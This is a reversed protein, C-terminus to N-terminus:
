LLPRQIIKLFSNHIKKDLIEFNFVFLVFTKPSMPGLFVQKGAELQLNLMTLAEWSCTACYAFFQQYHQVGTEVRDGVTEELAWEGQSGWRGTGFLALWHQSTGVLALCKSFGSQAGQLVLISKYCKM